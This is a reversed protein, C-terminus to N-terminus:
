KYFEVVEATVTCQRTMVIGFYFTNKFNVTVNALAQNAKLPYQNLMDRKAAGVLSSKTIGGGLGLFYTATSSGDIQAVYNFNAANLGTSPVIGGEHFSACSASFFLIVLGAILNKLINSYHNIKM